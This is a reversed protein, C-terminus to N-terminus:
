VITTRPSFRNLYSLYDAAEKQARGSEWGLFRQCVVAAPSLCDRGMNAGLGVMTRRMLVDTLNQALEHNFAFLVEAGIAPSSTGLPKALERDNRTLDLVDVARKGYIRILHKASEQAIGSHAIFDSIFQQDTSGPLPSTSTKCSTVLRGLHRVLRDTVKESLSRYTTLKGGVVSFLGVAERHEVILHRRTIAAEGKGGAEPLPRIGSYTYHVSAVGLNAKPFLYNTEDLLYNIEQQTAEVNDPSGEFRSDTTGILYLDNWPIIFFPRGDARAESYLAHDPGNRFREVIIHSGKTGGILRESKVPSKELVHDVWPGTVNVIASTKVVYSGDSDQLRVGFVKQSQVLLEEASTYTRIVAGHEIASLINEVVLREAYEVQADYYIAGGQLGSSNLAPLRELLRESSMMSHSGLSKDMSLLDYFTLGAKITLYGRRNEKYIPIILPLAKVLHPALLLLRERERLSERVLFIEGFELYRLGGHILRTSWSTTGSSLDGKDVLLVKLGRMAADRAIGAGNIGAGIVVVDFQSENIGPDNM